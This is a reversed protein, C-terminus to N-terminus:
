KCDDCPAMIGVRSLFQIQTMRSKSKRTTKSLLLECRKHSWSKNEHDIGDRQCLVQRQTPPATGNTQRDDHTDTYKHTETQTDTDIHRQIRTQIHASQSQTVLAM